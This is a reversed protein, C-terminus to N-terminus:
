HGRNPHAPPPSSRPVSYDPLFYLSLLDKTHPDANIIPAVNVILCITKKKGAASTNKQDPSGYFRVEYAVDLRPLEWPNTTSGQTRLVRRSGSRSSSNSCGASTAGVPLEQSVTSDLYCAALSGLAGNGLTGRAGPRSYGGHQFRVKPRVSYQEKLGLNFLANNLTRGMLFEPCLYYARKTAKRTYQPATENWNVLLDDLVSHVQVTLLSLGLSRRCLSLTASSLWRLGPM